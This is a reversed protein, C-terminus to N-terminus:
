QNLLTQMRHEYAYDWKEKQKDYMEFLWEIAQDMGDETMSFSHTVKETDPTKDFSWPDPFISVSFSTKDEDAYFFYRMGHHEGSFPEKKLGGVPVLTKDIM